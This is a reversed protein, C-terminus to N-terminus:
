RDFCGNQLACKVEDMKADEPLRFRRVFCGRLRELHHWTDSEDEQEKIREGSIQLINGEEVQVKVEEKRVGPLDARFIHAKDTERWDVNAGSRSSGSWYSFPDWVDSSFPTSFGFWPDM